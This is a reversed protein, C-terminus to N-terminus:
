LVRWNAKSLPAHPMKRTCSLSCDLRFGSGSRVAGPEPAPNGLNVAAVPLVWCDGPGLGGEANLESPVTLVLTTVLVAFGHGAPARVVAYLTDTISWVRGVAGCCSVPPTM